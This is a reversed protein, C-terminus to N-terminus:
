YPEPNMKNEVETSRDSRDKENPILATFETFKVAFM